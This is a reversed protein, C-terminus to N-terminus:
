MVQKNHRGSKECEYIDHPLTVHFDHHFLPLHVNTNQRNRGLKGTKETHWTEKRYGLTNM